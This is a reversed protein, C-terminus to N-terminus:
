PKAQLEADFEEMMAITDTIGVYGPYQLKLKELGLKALLRKEPSMALYAERRADRLKDPSIQIEALRHRVVIEADPDTM